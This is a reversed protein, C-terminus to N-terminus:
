PVVGEDRAHQCYYWGDRDDECLCYPQVLHEAYERTWGMRKILGDLTLDVRPAAAREAAAREKAERAWQERQAPTADQYTKLAQRFDLADRLQEYSLPVVHSHKEVNM